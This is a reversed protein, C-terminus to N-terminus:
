YCITYVKELLLSLFKLLNLKHIFPIENAPLINIFLENWKIKYRLSTLNGHLDSIEDAFHLCQLIYRIWM